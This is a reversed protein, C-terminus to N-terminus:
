RSGGPGRSPSGPRAQLACDMFYRVHALALRRGRRVTTPSQGWAWYSTRLNGIPAMLEWALQRAPVDGRMRGDHAWDRFLAALRDLLREIAELYSVKARLDPPLRDYLGRFRRAEDRCWSDILGRTFRALVRAPDSEHACARDLLATGSLPGQRELLAELLAEKSTFHAYISPAQLGVASAIRRMSTGAYGRESFEALAVALIRTPTDRSM